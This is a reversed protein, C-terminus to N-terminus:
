NSGVGQERAFLACVINQAESSLVALGRAVRVVPTSPRAIADARRLQRTLIRSVRVAPATTGSRPCSGKVGSSRARQRACKNSPKAESRDIAVSKVSPCNGAFRTDSLEAGGRDTARKPASLDRCARRQGVAAGGRLNACLKRRRAINGGTAHRHIRPARQFHNRGETIDSKTEPRASSTEDSHIATVNFRERKQIGM